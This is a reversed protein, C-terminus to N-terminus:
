DPLSNATDGKVRTMGSLHLRVFDLHRKSSERDVLLSGAARGLARAAMLANWTVSLPRPWIESHASIHGNRKRLAKQHPAWRKDACAEDQHLVHVLPNYWVEFGAEKIRHGMIPEEGYMFINRPMGGAAHFAEARYIMCSGHVVGCQVPRDSPSCNLTDNLAREARWVGPLVRLVEWVSPLPKPSSQTSGDPLVVKPGVLGARPRERLFQILEVLSSAPLVVDPNVLALFSGRARSVGLNNGRAFGLNEASAIVHAQPCDRRLAEVSGDGSANDVVIIEFSLMGAAAPVSAVLKAVLDAVKYNVTVVSVVPTGNSPEPTM